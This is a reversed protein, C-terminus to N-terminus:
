INACGAAYSNDQHKMKKKVKTADLCRLRDQQVAYEAVSYLSYGLLGDFASLYAQM